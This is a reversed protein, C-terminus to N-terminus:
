PRDGFGPHSFGAHDAMHAMIDRMHEVRQALDAVQQQLAMIQAMHIALAQETQQDM